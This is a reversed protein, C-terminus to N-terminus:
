AADPDSGIIGRPPEAKRSGGYSDVWSKSEEFTVREMWDSRAPRDPVECRPVVQAPELHFRRGSAAFSVSCSLASSGFHGYVIHLGDGFQEDDCDVGSSYASLDAHSHITGFLLHGKPRPLSEYELRLYARLRGRYDRYGPIRQPPADFRYRGRKPDFFTFVIAEGEFRDNVEDFFALVEELPEAPIPPFRMSLRERAPYLGPLDRTV